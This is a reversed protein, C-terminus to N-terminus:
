IRVSLPLFLVSANTIGNGEFRWKATAGAPIFADVYMYLGTTGLNNSFDVISDNVLIKIASSKGAAAGSVALIGCKTPTYMNNSNAVDIWGGDAELTANALDRNVRGAYSMISLHIAM